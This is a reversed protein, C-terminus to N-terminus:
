AVNADANEQADATAAASADATATMATIGAARARRIRPRRFALVAIGALGFAWALLVLVSTVTPAHGAAIEWGLRALQYTPLANAINKMATPLIAPPVWLGGMASMAMYLGYSVPYAADASILFGIAIGLAAFVTSGLWMAGVLALWQGLTLQVGKVIAATLCVLVITPLATAVSALVKATLVRATPVPMSRLQDLWGIQREEAIRPATTSLVAWIAGYAAMAVMIEVTGKLQGPEVPSGGFLSAFLLYFGIPTVVALALYKPDRLMRLIELRLFYLNM